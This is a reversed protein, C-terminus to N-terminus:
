WTCRSIEKRSWGTLFCPIIFLLVLGGGCSLITWSWVCAFTIWMCVCVCTFSYHILFIFYDAERHSSIMILQKEVM